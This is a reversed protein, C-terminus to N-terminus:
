FVPITVEATLEGVKITFTNSGGGGLSVVAMWAGPVDEDVNALEELRGSGEVATVEPQVAVPIGASDTPRFLIMQTSGPPGGESAHLVTIAKAIGSPVGYWYPVRLQTGTAVSKVVIFGEYAGPALDSSLFQIPIWRTAKPELAFEYFYPQPAPGRTPLVEIAYTDAAGSINNITFVRTSDATGAGTGFAVSTPDATLGVKLGAEVNLLGAGGQQVDFPNVHDPSFPTATNIVLSRYQYSYLGQRAAKVVALAGAVMPSSFSTGAVVGYQATGNESPMATYIDMGPALVDPKIMYDIAPGRSSGESLRQPDVPVANMQFLFTATLNPYSLLRYAVAIGAAHSIMLAPLESSGATWGTPIATGYQTFLLAGIAGADAVNALKDSFFCEGRAVLAIKGTLSGAPLASCALGTSDLNKVDAVPGSVSPATSPIGSPAYAEFSGYDHVVAMAAFVRDNGSNGVSVAAKATSPSSITNLDPGDNGASAVVVVNYLAAREAAQVLPDSELRGAAVSGLSLNIVDMGDGVAEDMAKLIADTPAGEEVSPFVKYNGLYAKPAIGTIVGAPGANPVGAAVMAVATGHGEDDNTSVGEFYTRAVIVKNNTNKTESEASVQPFGFPPTLGSDQFAPHTADIGTDIIAIRIGKGAFQTGGVLAWAETARVVGGARDMTPKYRRVLHVRKVGPVEKLEELRAASTEVVLANAVNEVTRIVRVDDGEIRQRVQRQQERVQPVRDRIAQRVGERAAARTAVQEKSVAALAPEGDLEVIYRGPVIQANAGFALLLLSALLWSAGRRM